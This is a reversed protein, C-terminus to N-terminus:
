TPNGKGVFSCCRNQGHSVCVFSLVAADSGGFSGSGSSGDPMWSRSLGRHCGVAGSDRPERPHKEPIRRSRPSQAQMVLLGSTGGVKCVETALLSGPPKWVTRLHRLLFNCSPLTPFSSLSKTKSHNELIHLNYM